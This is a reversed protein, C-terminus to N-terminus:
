GPSGSVGPMPATAAFALILGVSLAFWTGLSRKSM